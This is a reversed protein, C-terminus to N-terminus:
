SKLSAFCARQQKLWVELGATRKQQGHLPLHFSLLTPLFLALSSGGTLPWGSYFCWSSSPAPHHPPPQHMSVLLAFLLLAMIWLLSLAAGVHPATLLESPFPLQLPQGPAPPRPINAPLPQSAPWPPYPATGPGLFFTHGLHSEEGDRRAPAHSSGFPFLQPSLWSSLLQSNRGM